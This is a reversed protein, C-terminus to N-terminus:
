WPGPGHPSQGHMFPKLIEPSFRPDPPMALSHNAPDMERLRRRAWNLWEEAAVREEGHLAEARVEAAELYVALDRARHWREVANMLAEARHQERASEKADEFVQEWRRRRDQRELELKRDREEEVASRLEVEHLVVSLRDELYVTKTDAFVDGRVHQGGVVKLALRGSPVQDHTPIGVWSHKEKRKLEQATPEHPVTDNLESLDITHPHGRITIYLYGKPYRYGNEVPPTAVHYGRSVAAKAIADLIRLARNRTARSHRLRDRNDRLNKVVVHPNRLEDPVGITAPEVPMWAPADVLRIVTQRSDREWEIRLLKGAPVKNYRTASGILSKWHGGGYGTDVALSGGAAIIDAILQDVPRLGTVKRQIAPTSTPPPTAASAAEKDTAWHGPPYRGEELFFRGAATPEAKWGGGRRSIAVLRRTELAVATNKFTSDSMVGDPCGDVVWKLVVLQRSNVTREAVTGNKGWLSGIAETLLSAGHFPTSRRSTPERVPM